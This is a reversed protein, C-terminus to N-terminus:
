VRRPEEGAVQDDRGESWIRTRRPEQPHLHSAKQRCDRIMKYNKVADYGADLMVCGTGDPINGFMERFVPSDHARGRTVACSVIKRGKADVM